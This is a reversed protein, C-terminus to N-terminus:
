AGAPPPPHSRIAASFPGTASLRRRFPRGIRLGQAALAARYTLRVVKPSDAPARLYFSCASLKRKPRGQVGFGVLGGVANVCRLDGPSWGLERPLSSPLTM